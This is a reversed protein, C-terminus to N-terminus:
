ISDDRFTAYETILEETLEGGTAVRSGGLAEITWVVQLYVVRFLPHQLLMPVQRVLNDLNVQACQAFELAEGHPTKPFSPPAHPTDSL